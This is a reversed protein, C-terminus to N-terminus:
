GGFFDTAKYVGEAFVSITCADAVAAKGERTGTYDGAIADDILADGPVVFVQRSASQEYGDKNAVTYNLTYTGPMDTDVNGAVQVKETIDEGEETATFGPDEYPTGAKVVQVTPGELKLAAFSVVDTLGASTEKKCSQLGLLAVFLIAIISIKNKM